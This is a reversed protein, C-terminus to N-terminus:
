ARVFRGDGTRSSSLSRSTAWATLTTSRTNPLLIVGGRVWLRRSDRRLRLPSGPKESGLERM